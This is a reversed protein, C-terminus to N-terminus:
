DEEITIRVGYWMKHDLDSPKKVGMADLTPPANRALYDFIAVALHPEITMANMGMVSLQRVSREIIIANSEDVTRIGVGKKLVPM